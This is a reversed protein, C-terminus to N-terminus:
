KVVLLRQGGLLHGGKDFGIFKAGAIRSLSFSFLPAFTVISAKGILPKQSREARRM